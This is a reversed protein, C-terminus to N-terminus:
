KQKRGDKEMETRESEEQGEKRRIM